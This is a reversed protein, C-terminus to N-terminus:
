LAGGTGGPGGSMCMSTDFTCTVADCNLTGGALGLSSCDFGQLDAGDCQEGPSVVGDGCGGPMPGDDPDVPGTTPDPGTDGPPMTTPMPTNDDSSGDQGGDGDDPDPEATTSSGGSTGTPPPTNGATFNAPDDIDKGCAALAFLAVYLLAHAGRRM